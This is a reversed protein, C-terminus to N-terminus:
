IKASQKTLATTMDSTISGTLGKVGIAFIGRALIVLFLNLKEWWNPAFGLQRKKKREPVQTETLTLWRNDL